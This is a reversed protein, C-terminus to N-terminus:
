IESEIILVKGKGITVEAEKGTFENSVGIPFSDRVVAKNLPYKMGKITIDDAEKEMAFLSFFGKKEKPFYVTENQLIYMNTCNDKMYGNIGNQKLYVLCQINAITHELRKGLGGYITFELAGRNIGERVAALMDTDDKECPLTIVREREQQNLFSVARKSLSDFDGIYLDPCLDNELCFDIGGDVAVLFNDEKLCIKGTYQEGAGILIWKNKLMAEKNM